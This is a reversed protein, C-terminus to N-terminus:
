KKTAIFADIQKQVEALVQPFHAQNFAQKLDNLGQVPDVLGHMVPLAKETFASNLQSIQNTVPTPDFSFGILVEATYHSPDKAYNYWTRDAELMTSPTRELTPRWSLVYGPFTYQSLPTYEDSGVAQWDKGEVGYELLDHNAKISVWDLFALLKDPNRANKNITLFNWFQFDTLPKVDQQAQTYPFILELEAGPVNKTVAGYHAAVLGDTGVGTAAFKGQQFLSYIDDRTVNILDQNVIGDRYLQHTLMLSDLTEDMDWFAIAQPHQPDQTVYAFTGTLQMTSSPQHEFSKRNFYLQFQTEGKGDQAFPTIHTEHKKVAYLFAIFDDYSGIPPLGYKLRLDKRILFGSFGSFNIGLPIGYLKNYFRNSDLVAQPLSAKLNPYKDLKDDLAVIAGDKAFKQIHLWQADLAGDFHDGSTTKLLTQTAYSDWGIWQIRLTVGIDKQAKKNVASLVTAWGTPESGPALLVVETSSSSSTTFPDCAQLLASAGLVGGAVTASTSLFHRRTMPTRANEATM